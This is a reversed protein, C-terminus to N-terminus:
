GRNKYGCHLTENESSPSSNRLAEEFIKLQNLKTCNRCQPGCYADKGISVARTKFIETM